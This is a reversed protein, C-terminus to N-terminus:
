LLVTGHCAKNECAKGIVIRGAACPLMIGVPAPKEASGLVLAHLPPTLLPTRPTSPLPSSGPNLCPPVPDSHEITIYYLCLLVTVTCNSEITSLSYSPQIIHLQTPLASNREREHLSPASSAAPSPHTLSPSISPSLSRPPPHLSNPPLSALAPATCRATLAPVSM